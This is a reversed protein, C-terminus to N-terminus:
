NGYKEVSSFSESGNFSKGSTQFFKFQSKFKDLM